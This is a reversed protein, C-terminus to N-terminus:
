MEPLTSCNKAGIPCSYRQPAAARQMGPAFATRPAEDLNTAGGGGTKTTRYERGEVIDAVAKELDARHQYGQWRAIMKGSRFVRLDPAKMIGFQEVFEPKQTVNICVFVMENRHIRSLDRIAPALLRCPGCNDMYFDVFVLAEKDLIGVLEDPSGVNRIYRGHGPEAFASLETTQSSCGVAFLVVGAVLAWMAAAKLTFERIDTDRLVTAHSSRRM